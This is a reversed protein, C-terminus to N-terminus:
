HTLDQVSYSALHLVSMGERSGIKLCLAGLHRVNCNDPRGWKASKLYVGCYGGGGRKCQRQLM